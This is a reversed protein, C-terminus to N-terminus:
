HHIVEHNSGHKRCRNTHLLLILQQVIVKTKVLNQFAQGPGLLIANNQTNVVGWNNIFQGSPPAYTSWPRSLQGRPPAYTSWPRSRTLLSSISSKSSSKSSMKKGFISSCLCYSPQKSKM